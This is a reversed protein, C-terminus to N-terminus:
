QEEPKQFQCISAPKLPCTRDTIKNDSLDLRTLNTLNSIPKIDVIQNSSLYLRTLNTLNSIPKIDVIQNSSLYLRTLNTLNSIPKIDVIQNFSLDLETLNTLKQSAANCETTEAKKLLVEVTHKQQASLKSLNQCWQAFTKYERAPQSMGISTSALWWGASLALTIKVNHAAIM